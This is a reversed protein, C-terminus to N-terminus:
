QFKHGFAVSWEADYAHNGIHRRLQLQGRGPGDMIDEMGPEQRREPFSTLIPVIERTRGWVDNISFLFILDLGDDIMSIKSLPSVKLVEDFPLSIGRSVVGPFVLSIYEGGLQNLFVVFTVGKSIFPPSRSTLDRDAGEM